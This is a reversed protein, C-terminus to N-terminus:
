ARSRWRRASCPGAGRTTPSPGASWGAGGCTSADGRHTPRRRRRRGAREAGRALVPVRLRARRDRAHARRPRGPRRDRAPHGRPAAADRRRRERGRRARGTTSWGGAASRPRTTSPPSASRRSRSRGTSASSRACSCTSPTARDSGERACRRPTRTAEPRSSLPTTFSWGAPATMWSTELVNSGPVYRRAVPARLEAPRLPLGRRRSRAPGRVREALRIPAPVAMRGDRGLRGTGGHPLRLPLRLRWDCPVRARRGSRQSREGLRWRPEVSDGGASSSMEAM